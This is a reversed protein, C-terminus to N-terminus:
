GILSVTLPAIAIFVFAPLVLLGLPLLLKLQLREIKQEALSFATRQLEQAQQLLLSSLRTGSHEVLATIESLINLEDQLPEAQYVETYIEFVLNQARNINLGSSLALALGQLFFGYSEQKPWARQIQRASVAKALTLLIVGLGISFLLIPKTLLAQTVGIGALQALGLTILPLWIVLKTSAKPGTCVVELRNVARERESYLEAANHLEASIAAGFRQSITILFRLNKDKPMGGIIKTAQELDVGSRLLGAFKTLIMASM